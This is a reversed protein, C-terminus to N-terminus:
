NNCTISLFCSMKGESTWFMGEHKMKKKFLLWKLKKFSSVPFHFCFPVQFSMECPQSRQQQSLILFLLHDVSNKTRTWSSCSGIPWNLLIITRRRCNSWWAKSRCGFALYIMNCLNSPTPSSSLIGFGFSFDILSWCDM